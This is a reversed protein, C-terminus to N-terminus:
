RKDVFCQNSICIDRTRINWISNSNFKYSTNVIKISFNKILNSLNIKKLFEGGKGLQEISPIFYEDCALAITLCCYIFILLKLTTM